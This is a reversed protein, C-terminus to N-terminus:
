LAEAKARGLVAIVDEASAVLAARGARILAHCGASQESTVPGPVAMLPRGLATTCQATNM